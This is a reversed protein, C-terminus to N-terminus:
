AGLYCGALVSGFLTLWLAGLLCTISGRSAGRLILLVMPMKQPSVPDSSFHVICLSPAEAERRGYTQARHLAQLSPSLSTPGQQGWCPSPHQLPSWLKSLVLLEGWCLGTLVGPQGLLLTGGGHIPEQAFDQWLHHDESGLPYLLSQPKM